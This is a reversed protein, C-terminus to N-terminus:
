RPYAQGHAGFFRARAHRQLSIPNRPSLKSLRYSGLKPRVYRALQKKYESFTRARLRPKAAVELWHDLYENLSQRTPEFLVGLDKERLLKNLVAQADKKTGHVTRNLYKRRGTEADRGTFVRVTYKGKSRLVIQGAM